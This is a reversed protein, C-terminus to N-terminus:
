FNTIFAEDPQHDIEYMEDDDEDDVSDDCILKEYTRSFIM